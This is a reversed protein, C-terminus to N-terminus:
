LFARDIKSYMLVYTYYCTFIEIRYESIEEMSSM